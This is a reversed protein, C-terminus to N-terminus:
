FQKSLKVSWQRGILDFQTIDYGYLSGADAPDPMRNFVNKAGVQLWM